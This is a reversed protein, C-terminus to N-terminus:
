KVIGYIILATSLITLYPTIQKLVREAYRAQPEVYIIDNAQLVISALEVYEMKSLDINYIEPNGAGVRIIRINYAKGDNIGGAEALAEILTTNPNDLPIVKAMSEQGGPFVIVRMNTVRLQVFPENYYKKFKEELFAEAERLTMGELKQRGIVPLKVFGDHEVLYDVMTERNMQMQGQANEIPDILSEADNTYLNFSLKDNPAIRYEEVKANSIDTYVYNRDTKFMRGPMLTNSCSTTLFVVLLLISVRRM